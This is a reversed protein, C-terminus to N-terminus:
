LVAYQCFLSLTVVNVYLAHLCCLAATEGKSDGFELGYVLSASAMVSEHPIMDSSWVSATTAKQRFRTHPKAVGFPTEADTGQRRKM